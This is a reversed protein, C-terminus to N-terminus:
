DVSKAQDPTWSPTAAYVIDLVGEFAYAEQPPIHVQDGEHLIIHRGNKVHLTGQGNLVHILSDCETNMTYGDGPYRGNIHIPALNLAAKAFAYEFSTVSGKSFKERNTKKIHEM